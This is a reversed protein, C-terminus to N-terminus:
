TAVPTHTYLLPWFNKCFKVSRMCEYIYFYLFQFNMSLKHYNKLFKINTEKLLAPDKEREATFKMAPQLVATDLMTIDQTTNKVSSTMVGSNLYVGFAMSAEMMMHATIPKISM